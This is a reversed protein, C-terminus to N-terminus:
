KKLRAEWKKLYTACNELNRLYHFLYKFLSTFYKVVFSYLPVQTEYPVELATVKYWSIEKRKASNRSM